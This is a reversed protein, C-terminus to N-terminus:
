TDIVIRNPEPAEWPSRRKDYSEIIKAPDWDSPDLGNQVFVEPDSHTRQMWEQLQVILESAKM